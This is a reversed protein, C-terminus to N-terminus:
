KLFLAMQEEDLYYGEHKVANKELGYTRFGFKAYLSKAKENTAIVTLNVQEMNELQRARRVVEAVLAGGVGRGGFAAAVYMRFLLGKHRLRERDSGERQFSVVGMWDGSGSTAALTFSDPLNNTPFPASLEDNESIRFTDPHAVLGQLFFRKYKSTNETTLELIKM